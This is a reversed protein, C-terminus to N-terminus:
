ETEADIVDGVVTQQHEMQRIRSAIERMVQRFQSYQVSQDEEPQQGVLPSVLKTYADALGRINNSKLFVDKMHATLAEIGDLAGRLIQEDTVDEPLAIGEKAALGRMQAVIAKERRRALMQRATEKTIQYEGEGTHSVIRSLERDYIAGSKLLQYREPNATVDDKTPKKDAM